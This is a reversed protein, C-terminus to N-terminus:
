DRGAPTLRLPTGPIHPLPPSQAAPGKAERRRRGDPGTTLTTRRQALRPPATNNIAVPPKRAGGAALPIVCGGASGPGGGVPGSPGGCGVSSFAIQPIGVPTSGAVSKAFCVLASAM